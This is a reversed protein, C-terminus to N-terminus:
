STCFNWNAGSLAAEESQTLTPSADKEMRMEVRATSQRGDLIASFLQTHSTMPYMACVRIPAGALAPTGTPFMIKVRTDAETLGIRDKVLCMLAATDGTAAPSTSALTCTGTGPQVVVADRAADRTGARVSTGEYFVLGFEFIGFLFTAVVPLVIALEILAAARERAGRNATRRHARIM